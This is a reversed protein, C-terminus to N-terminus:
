KRKLMYHESLLQKPVGDKKFKVEVIMDDVVDTIIGEGFLDHVVKDGVKWDTIGNTPIQGNEKLFSYDFDKDDLYEDNFFEDDYPEDDEDYYYSKGEVVNQYVEEYEENILINALRERLEKIKLSKVEKWIAEEKKAMIKDVREELHAQEYEYEEQDRKAKKYEQPCAAFAVAVMHKCMKKNGKVFPCTCKSNLPHNLDVEVDYTKSGEVKASYVGDSIQKLNKVRKTEFYDFGRWYSANSAKTFISM